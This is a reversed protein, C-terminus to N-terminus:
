LATQNRAVAAGGAGVGCAGAAARHPEGPSSDAHRWAKARACALDMRGVRRARSRPPSCGSTGTAVPCGTSCPAPARTATPTSRTASAPQVRL